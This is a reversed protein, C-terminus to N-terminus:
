LVETTIPFDKRGGKAIGDDAGNGPLYSYWDLSM